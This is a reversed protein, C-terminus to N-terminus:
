ADGKAWPCVGLINLAGDHHPLVLFLARSEASMIGTKEDVGVPLGGLRGRIEGNSWEFKPAGSFVYGRRALEEFAQDNTFTEDTMAAGQYRTIKRPGDPLRVGFRMEQPKKMPM